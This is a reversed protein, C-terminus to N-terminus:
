NSFNTSTAISDKTEWNSLVRNMTKRQKGPDESFLTMRFGTLATTIQLKTQLMNTGYDEKKISKESYHKTLGHKKHNIRCKTLPFCNSKTCNERFHMTMDKPLAQIVGRCPSRLM